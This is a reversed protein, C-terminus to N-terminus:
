IISYNKFRLKATLPSRTIFERRAAEFLSNYQTMHANYGSYDHQYLSVKALIYEIYMRDYPASDVVTLDDIVRRIALKAATQAEIADRDLIIKDDAVELVYANTSSSYDVAENLDSLVAIQIKDGEYFPANEIEIVNESTNFEGRIDTNRIPKPLVLYVLSLKDGTFSSDYKVAAAPNLSRFDQKEYTQNNFIIQEVLDFTIDPPLVIEGNKDITTELIDYQKIIYRRIESSVEDCWCLKEELNYPNPLLADAREIARLIEM